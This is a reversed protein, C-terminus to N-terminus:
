WTWKREVMLIREKEGPYEHERLGVRNGADLLHHTLWAEIESFAAKEAAYELTWSARAKLTMYLQIIKSLPAASITLLTLSTEPAIYERPHETLWKSAKVYDAGANNLLGRYLAENAYGYADKTGQPAMRTCLAERISAERLPIIDWRTPQKDCYDDEPFADLAANIEEVTSQTAEMKKTEMCTCTTLLSNCLTLNRNTYLQLPIQTYKQAMFCNNSSHSRSHVFRPEVWLYFQSQGNFFFKKARLLYFQSQDNPYKQAWRLFTQSYDNPNKQVWSLYVQSHDSSYKQAWCLFTQSYDNLTKQVGSLYSQSRDNLYTQAWNLHVIRGLLINRQAKNHERRLQTSTEWKIGLYYDYNGGWNKRSKTKGTESIVM